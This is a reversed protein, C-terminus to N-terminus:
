RTAMGEAKKLTHIEPMKYTTTASTHNIGSLLISLIKSSYDAM